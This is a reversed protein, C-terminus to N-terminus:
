NYISTEPPEGVYRPKSLVAFAVVGTTDMDAISVKICDL